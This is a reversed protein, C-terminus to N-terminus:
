GASFFDPGIFARSVPFSRCPTSCHGPLGRCVVPLADLLSRFPGPSLGPLHRPFVPFAGPSSWPGQRPAKGRNKPKNTPKGTLLWWHRSVQETAQDRCARERFQFCLRSGRHTGGARKRATASREGQRDNAPAKQEVGKRDKGAAKGTKARTM